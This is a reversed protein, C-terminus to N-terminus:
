KPLCLSLISALPSPLVKFIAEVELRGPGGGPEESRPRSIDRACALRDDTDVKLKMSSLLRNDKGAYISTGDADVFVAFFAEEDLVPELGLELLEVLREDLIRWSSSM